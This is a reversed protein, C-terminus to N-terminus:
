VRHKRRRSSKGGDRERREVIEEAVNFTGLESVHWLIYYIWRTGLIGTTRTVRSKTGELSEPCVFYWTFYSPDGTM